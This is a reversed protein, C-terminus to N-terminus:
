VDPEGFTTDQEFVFCIRGSAVPTTIRRLAYQVAAHDEGDYLVPAWGALFMSIALDHNMHTENYSLGAPTM